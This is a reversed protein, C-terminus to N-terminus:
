ANDEEAAAGASEGGVEIIQGFSADVGSQALAGECDRLLLSVREHTYAFLDKSSRDDGFIASCHACLNIVAVFVDRCREDLTSRAKANAAADATEKEDPTMSDLRELRTELEELKASRKRAVEEKAQLTAELEKTKTRSEALETRLDALRDKLEEPGEASEVEELIAQREEPPLAAIGKRLLRLDRYGLGLADQMELLNGGFTALNQLDEAIKRYSYGHANCFEEWTNVQVIEGTTRDRVNMGKYARSEKIQAFAKLAAVRNISENLQFAAISGALEALQLTQALENRPMSVSNARIADIMPAAAEAVAQAEQDATDFAKRGRRPSISSIEMNENM